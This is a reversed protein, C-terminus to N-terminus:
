KPYQSLYNPQLPSAFLIKQIRIENRFKQQTSSLELGSQFFEWETFATKVVPM